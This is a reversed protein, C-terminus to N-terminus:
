EMKLLGAEEYHQVSDSIAEKLTKHKWGIKRLKEPTLHLDIGLERFIEHYKFGPYINKLMGYFDGIKIPDLTCIYRGSAERKEYILLAADALDRVDVFHWSRDKERFDSSGKLMDLLLLSSVNVTSQLLPGIVISPCLTVVDLGNEQAHRFAEKEAMTKSLSYWDKALDDEFGASIGGIRRRQLRVERVFGAEARGVGKGFPPLRRPESENKRSRGVRLFRAIERQEQGCDGREDGVAPKGM